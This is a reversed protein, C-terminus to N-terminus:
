GPIVCAGLSEYGPPVDMPDYWATCETMAVCDPADLDCFPICCGAANPDCGPYAGPNGCFTGPDCVNIFECPDGIAGMDGSVDPACQFTDNVPYCVDKPNECNQILPDCTQLCLILSGMNAITCATGPGCCSAADATCKDESGECLAVCVGMNTEPDVNWCMGGKACSDLGSVGSGEVTCPDGVGDTGDPVCKTSNWAGGGDNAWANCKEGDKCDQAWIDCEFTGTSGGDPMCLFSCGTSETDSSTSTSGTAQTDSSTNGTTATATAATTDTTTGESTGATTSSASNGTSSQSSGTPNTTSEDDNKGDGACASIIMLGSVLGSFITRKM